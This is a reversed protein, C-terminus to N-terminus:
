KSLFAGAQRAHRSMENSPSLAHLALHVTCPVKGQPDADLLLM